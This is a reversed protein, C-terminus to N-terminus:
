EVSFDNLLVNRDHKTICLSHLILTSSYSGCTHVTFTVSLVGQSINLAPIILLYLAPPTDYSLQPIVRGGGEPPTSLERGGDMLYTLFRGVILQRQVKREPFGFGRSGATLSWGSGVTTYVLFFTDFRRKLYGVLVGSVDFWWGRVEINSITRGKSWLIISQFNRSSIKLSEPCSNGRQCVSLCVCMYQFCYWGRQARPLLVLILVKCHLLFM